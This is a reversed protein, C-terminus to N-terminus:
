QLEDLHCMSEYDNYAQKTLTRTITLKLQGGYYRGRSHEVISGQLSLLKVRLWNWRKSVTYTHVKTERAVERVPKGELLMIVIEKEVDPSLQNM